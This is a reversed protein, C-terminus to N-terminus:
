SAEGIPMAVQTLITMPQQDKLIQMQEEDRVFLSGAFGLSNVSISAFSDQSRPVMLIWDRTALLNYADGAQLGLTTLLTNYRSLTEEAAKMPSQMGSPLRMLGHVFPLKPITAITGKFEASALWSEIAIAGDGSWLPLPILQLHKHPQSAGANKGANYFALGDYEVLCTWLAAFDELTLLREQEEFARTIILLHYDVVNFKNLLCLHTESLDAVFLDEEYPLFPNIVEGSIIAKQTQQRAAKEKRTLNALIRVLFNVGDQDVIERHTPISRLAGCELAHQTQEIVRTWLTGPELM